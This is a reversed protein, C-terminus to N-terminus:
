FNSPNFQAHVIQTVVLHGIRDGRHIVAPNKDGLEVLTVSVVGRNAPYIMVTPEAMMSLGYHQSLIEDPRIQAEYGNPISFRLGTSITAHDGPNITVDHDCAAVIDM